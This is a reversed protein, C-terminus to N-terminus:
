MKMHYACHIEWSTKKEGDYVIINIYTCICKAKAAVFYISLSLFLLSFFKRQVYNSITHNTTQRPFNNHTQKQVVFSHVYEFYFHYLKFSFNGNNTFKTNEFLSFYVLFHWMFNVIFITKFFNVKITDM